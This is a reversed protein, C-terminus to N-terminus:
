VLSNQILLPWYLLMVERLNTSCVVGWANAAATFCAACFPATNGADAPSDSSAISARSCGINKSAATSGITVLLVGPAPRSMRVALALLRYEPTLRASM